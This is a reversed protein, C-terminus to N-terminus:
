RAFTEADAFREVIEYGLEQECEPCSVAVAVEEPGGQLLVQARLARAVCARCASPAHRCRPTLRTLPYADQPKDELCVTCERIEQQEHQQQKRNSNDNNKTNDHHHHHHHDTTEATKM